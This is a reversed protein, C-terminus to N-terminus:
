ATVEVPQLSPQAYCRVHVELIKRVASPELRHLGHVLGSYNQFPTVSAASKIDVCDGVAAMSFGEIRRGTFKWVRATMSTDQKKGTPDDWLIGHCKEVVDRRLLRGAGVTGTRPPFGPWHILDLTPLNLFLLDRLGCAAGDYRRYFEMLTDSHLDDSNTCLFHTADTRLAVALAANQKHDLRENDHVVVTGGAREVMAMSGPEDTAVFLSLPFLTKQREFEALFIELVEPRRWAATVIAIYRNNTGKSMTLVLPRGAM